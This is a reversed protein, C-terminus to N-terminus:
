FRAVPLAEPASNQVRSLMEWSRKEGTGHQGNKGRLAARTNMVRCLTPPARSSRPLESGGGARHAGPSCSPLQPPTPSAGPTCPRAPASPVLDAGNGRRSSSGPHANTRPSPLDGFSARLSACVRQEAGSRAAGRGEGRPRQAGRQGVTRTPPAAAAASSGVNLSVSTQDMM